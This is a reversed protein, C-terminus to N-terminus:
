SQICHKVARPDDQRLVLLGSQGQPVVALCRRAVDESVGESIRYSILNDSGEAGGSRAVDGSCLDSVQEAPIPPFGLDCPTFYFKEYYGPDDPVHMKRYIGALRGDADMVAATNHYVGPARREFLPAIIVADLDGALAGLTETTPGPVPEALDFRDPDEAQCPYPTRFLEQLCIIKAGRDAAERIGERARELNAQPDPRAAMQVLGIAITDM